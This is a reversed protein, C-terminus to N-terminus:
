LKEDKDDGQKVEIFNNNEDLLLEPEDKYFEEDGDLLGYKKVEDLTFKEKGKPPLQFNKKQM